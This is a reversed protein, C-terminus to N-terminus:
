QLYNGVQDYRLSRNIRRKLDEAQRRISWTNNGYLDQEVDARLANMAAICVGAEAQKEGSLLRRMEDLNRVAQQICDIQRRISPSGGALTDLLEDHWSSWYTFYRRYAEEKNAARDEYTEPALVMPEAPRSAQKPKRTFKRAFAECGCMCITLCVIIAYVCFGHRVGARLGTM